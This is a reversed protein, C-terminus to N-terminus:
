TLKLTIRQSIIKIRGRRSIIFAGGIEVELHLPELNKRSSQWFYTKIKGTRTICLRM